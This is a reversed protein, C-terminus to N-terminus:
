RRLHWARPQLFATIGLTSLTSGIGSHGRGTWPLRPSVRDCCNWYGTGSSVQSLIGVARARDASYVAATLGYATDNMLATATADDPVSQIGIIPGFSEQQMVTMTHNVGTLVTPAFYWGAGDIILHLLM